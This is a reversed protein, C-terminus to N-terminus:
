KLGQQKFLEDLIVQLRDHHKSRSQEVLDSAEKPSMRDEQILRNILHLKFIRLAVGWPMEVVPPVQISGSSNLKHETM